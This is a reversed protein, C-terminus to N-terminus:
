QSNRNEAAIRELKNQMKDSDAQQEKETSAVPKSGGCAVFTMAILAISALTLISKRM